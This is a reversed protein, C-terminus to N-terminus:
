MGLIWLVKSERTSRRVFDTIGRGCRLVHPALEATAVGDWLSRGFLAHHNAFMPERGQAGEMLRLCRDLDSVLLDISEGQNSPARVLVIGFPLTKVNQQYQLKRDLTVFADCAGAARRLLDDNKVGAWGLTHVHLVTPGALAQVFDLPFQEDLLLRM